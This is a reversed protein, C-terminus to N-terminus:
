ATRGERGIAPQAGCHEVGNEAIAHAEVAHHKGIIQLHFGDDIVVADLLRHHLACGRADIQEAHALNVFQLVLRDIGEDAGGFGSGNRSRADILGVRPEICEHM